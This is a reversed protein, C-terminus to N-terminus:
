KKRFDRFVFYKIMFFSALSSLGMALGKSLNYRWWNPIEIIAFLSNAGLFVLNSIGLSILAQIFFAFRQYSDGKSARKFTISANWIYSNLIALSYSISNYVILLATKETHFLLLLVNLVAIDILANSVGIISFQFFQFRDSKRKKERM